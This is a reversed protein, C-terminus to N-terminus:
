EKEKDLEESHADMETEWLRHTTTYSNSSADYMENYCRNFGAFFARRVWDLTDGNLNHFDPHNSDTTAAYEEWMQEITKM